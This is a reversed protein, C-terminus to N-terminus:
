DFFVRERGELTSAAREVDELNLPPKQHKRNRIPDLDAKNVPNERVLGEKLAYNIMSCLDTVLNWNTKNSIPRGNVRRQKQKLIFEEVDKSRIATVLTSEGFHPLTWKQFNWRLGDLRWQSRGKRASEVLYASAVAAFTNKPIPARNKLEVLFEREAERAETKTAWAYKKYTHGARYVRYGWKKRDKRYEIAM